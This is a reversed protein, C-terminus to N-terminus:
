RLSFFWFEDQLVDGRLSLAQLCQTSLDHPTLCPQSALFQNLAPFTAPAGSVRGVRLLWIVCGWGPLLTPRKREPSTSSHVNLGQLCQVRHHALSLPLASFPILYIEAQEAAM